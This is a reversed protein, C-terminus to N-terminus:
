QPVEILQMYSTAGGQQFVAATTGAGIAAGETKYTVSTTTNPSDLFCITQLTRLSVDTASGIILGLSTGSVNIPQAIVTSGRLLRMGLFAQNGSINFVWVPQTVLVLIKSSTSTPTISASLGTDTWSSTGIAIEISTASQATVPVSAAASWELGTATASNATLVHGNTGVGLRAAVDNATGVLLDGKADILTPSLAAAWRVGEAVTSDATLVASNAGVPLRTVANDATGVILDGKADVIDSVYDSATGVEVFFNDYFVFVRGTSAEFWFDGTAPNTPMSPNVNLTLNPFSWKLGTSTAPDVTLLQNATGVPLRAVVNDSTGVLLDGKADVDVGITVAGVTANSRLGSGPTVTTVNTTPNVSLTVNGEVGGGALGTGAVVATIDGSIPLWATGNYARVVDDNRTYVVMGETPSPLNADRAAPSDFVMVAQKMLYDNLESAFLVDDDVFTKFGAGAM